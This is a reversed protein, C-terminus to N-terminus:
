CFLFLKLILISLTRGLIKYFVYEIKVNKVFDLSDFSEPAVCRRSNAM